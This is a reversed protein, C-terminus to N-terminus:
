GLSLCLCDNSERVLLPKREPQCPPGDQPAPRQCLLSLSIFSDSLYALAQSSISGDSSLHHPRLKQSQHGLHISLHPFCVFPENGQGLCQSRHVFSPLSPPLRFQM